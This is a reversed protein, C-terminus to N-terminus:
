PFIPGVFYAEGWKKDISLLLNEIKAKEKIRQKSFRKEAAAKRDEKERLNLDFACNLDSIRM